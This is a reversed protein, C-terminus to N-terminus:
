ALPLRQHLPIRFLDLQQLSVEILGNEKVIADTNRFGFVSVEVGGILHFPVCFMLETVEFSVLRLHQSQPYGLNVSLQLGITHARLNSGFHLFRNHYSVTQNLSTNRWALATFMSRGLVYVKAILVDTSAPDVLFLIFANRTSVLWSADFTSPPLLNL